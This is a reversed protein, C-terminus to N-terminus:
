KCWSCSFHQGTQPNGVEKETSLTEAKTKREEIEALTEQPHLRRQRFIKVFRFADFNELTKQIYAISGLDEEEDRDLVM